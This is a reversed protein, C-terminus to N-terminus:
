VIAWGIEVQSEHVGNAAGDQASQSNGRQGGRKDGAGCLGAHRYEEDAMAGRHVGHGVVAEGLCERGGSLLQRARASDQHDRGVPERRAGRSDQADVFRLGDVVEPAKGIRQVLDLIWRQTM